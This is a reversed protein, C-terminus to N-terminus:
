FAMQFQGLGTSPNLVKVDAMKRVATESAFKIGMRRYFLKETANHQLVQELTLKDEKPEPQPAPTAAAVVERSSAGLAKLVEVVLKRDYSLGGRRYQAALKAIYARLRAARYAVPKGKAALREAAVKVVAMKAYVFLTAPRKGEGADIVLAVHEGDFTTQTFYFPFKVMALNATASM